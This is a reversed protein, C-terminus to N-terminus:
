NLSSLGGKKMRQRYAGLFAQFQEADAVKSAVTRYDIVGLSQPTSILRFGDRYPTAEMGLGFDRRVRDVGREDGALTLAVALDLVNRAQADDLTRNKRADMGRLTYRLAQAVNHWERRKWYIEVRLRDADLSKDGKILMLADVGRDLDNLARARLHLRQTSLTEPIGPVESQDLAEIAKQPERAMLRVVALRAGVKAKLEGQLRFRMQNDLLAAGRDLLDVGVLRDALNRIMEDGKDGAPTLEKFEDYLAIATVPPLKDAAGGLYLRDFANVMDQTVDPAKENTRFYTAAQRLTRLGTRYDGAFLYLEGLRRLLGFEFDDGRWAFRLTELEKAVEFPTLRRLKLLLEARSATAKARMYRNFGAQVEEWKGIAGDFDGGLELLRGRLYNIEDVQPKSPNDRESANLFFEAQKVDANVIAAEAVLLGGVMKLEHPYSRTVGGKAQVTEAANKMGEEAALVVGRWFLGEDNGDLSPHYLDERADKLRGMLYNAVGRLARFEPESEAAARDSKIRDLVALTEATLVASLNFRALELRAKEKPPGDRAIAAARELMKRTPTIDNFRLSRWRDLKLTTTAPRFLGAGTLAAVEEKEVPTVDLGTGSLLEVGSRLPRVRVDDAKASIVLGQATPLFRVQPYETLQPTGHSLPIVPVVVLTDGVTPDTLAFAEGPEPVTIFLRPGAPSSPQATVNLPREPKLENKGFDLVWTLAERRIEPNIGPATRMRLVTKKDYALQEVETFIPGATAHLAETDIERPADFIVWLNGARRFVAAAVPQDWAFRLVFPSNADGPAPAPAAAGKPTLAVPKGLPAAAPAKAASAKPPAPTGKPTLAVPKGPQAGGVPPVPQTAVKPAPQAPPAPAIKANAAPKGQPAKATQVPAASGDPKYVDVVVRNGALFHKIKSGAPISMTFNAGGAGSVATVNSVWNPPRNAMAKVSLRAPRDFSISVQGGDQTLSYSVPDAWDFVLRSYDNHQGSRVTVEPGAANAATAPPAPRAAATPRAPAPAAATETPAADPTLDVVVARGLDFANLTMAGTLRFSISQGDAAVAGSKLYKGLSRVAEAVSGEIPRSFRVTLLDDTVNTDFGVPAPWNFVLRAYTGHDAARVTVPDAQAATGALTAVLALAGALAMRWCSM